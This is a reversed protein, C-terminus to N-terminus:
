APDPHQRPVALLMFVIVSPSVEGRFAINDVYAILGGAVIGGSRRFISSNFRMQLVETDEADHRQAMKVEKM